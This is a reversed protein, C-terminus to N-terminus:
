AAAIANIEDSDQWGLFCLTVHLSGVDLARLDRARGLAQDRWGVLADRVLEPLELAVFLRIREDRMSPPPVRSPVRSQIRLRPWCGDCCTCRSRPPETVSM